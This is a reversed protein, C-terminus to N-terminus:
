IHILSLEDIKDFLAAHLKIGEKSWGEGKKAGQSNSTFQFPVAATGSSLSSILSDAERDRNNNSDAVVTAITSSSDSTRLVENQWRDYGNTYAIMLFSELAEPMFGSIPNSISM